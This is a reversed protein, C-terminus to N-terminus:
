VCEPLDVVGDNCTQRLENVILYKGRQCVFKIKDKHPSLMDRQEGWKLQIGRKNMEKVTV